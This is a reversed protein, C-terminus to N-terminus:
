CGGLKSTLLMKIGELVEIASRRRKDLGAKRTKMVPAPKKESDSKGLNKAGM